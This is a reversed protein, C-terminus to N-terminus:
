LASCRPPPVPSLLRERDRADSASPGHNACPIVLVIIFWSHAIPRSSIISDSACACAIQMAVPSKRRAKSANAAFRLGANSPSQRHGAGEGVAGVRRAVPDIPREELSAMPLEGLPEVAKCRGARHITSRGDPHRRACAARERAGEALRAQEVGATAGGSPSAEVDIRARRAQRALRQGPVVAEGIEGEGHLPEPEPAIAIAPEGSSARARDQRLHARAFPKGGERERLLSAPESTAAIAQEARARRRRKRARRRSSRSRSRRCRRRRCRTRGCRRPAPRAPATPRRPRERRDRSRSRRASRPSRGADAPSAATRSSGCHGRVPHEADGPSPNLIAICVSSM